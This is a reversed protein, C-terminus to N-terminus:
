YVERQYIIRDNGRFLGFTLKASPNEEFSGNNNWDYKFWTPVEYEFNLSGVKGNGVPPPFIFERYGGKEVSMLPAPAVVPNIDDPKIPENIHTSADLLRYQWASLGGAWLTDTNIESGINPITCNDDTNVEFTTGNWYQIEMPAPLESTEPGFSNEIYWRGFRVEVGEAVVPITSTITSNPDSDDYLNILDNDEIKSITFPIQAPFPADESHLNHEYIFHDTANFEYLLEGSREISSGINSTGTDNVVPDSGLTVVSAIQIKEGAVNPTLRVKAFDESPDVINIGSASLNMFAAYTYNETIVGNANYATILIEPAVGYTITGKGETEQGSYVWDLECTGLSSHKATISGHSEVTQTFYAPTFRGVNAIYGQIDGGDLYDGDDLKASLHIIGVESFNYSNTLTSNAFFDNTEPTLIGENATSPNPLFLERSVKLAENEFNGAVDNVSLDSFNDPVGDNNDDQNPQWQKATATLKFSEGAKKFANGLGSSALAKATNVDQSFDLQFGFPRVVFANSSVSFDKIVKNGEIDEVEVDKHANLIIKGADPYELSFYAKSDSTFRLGHEVTSTTLPVDVSNNVLTVNNACASSNEAHCTYSLNVPVDSNEPFVGVCSGTSDDKKVAQLFLLENNFGTDSPKGSLQMPIIPSTNSDNGFIFGTDAFVVDCSTTSSMNNQCIYDEALSLTAPILTNTYLFNTESSGGVVRVTKDVTGNVSLEVDVEGEYLSSCLSDSCAKITISEAECTLGQGDHSIEFHDVTNVCPHTENKIELLEIQTLAGEYMRVEDIAGTFRNRTEGSNTEGGISAIGNDVGWDGTYTNSFGGDTVRQAIGNVYIERTKDISNHVAAVFTWTDNSIVANLTDVSIPAVGRSYFRLKGTGPDGLSFGYGQQANNEDDVFIRSGSNTNSPKIWATITFSSQQNDFSSPLAVYDNIGDFTGYGCTGPNGTIAPTLQETNANNIAQGDFNGTEDTVEGEVGLWFLEDFRMELIPKEICSRASGDYGLGANQNNYIETIKDGSIASDFILLEDLLGEFAQSSVFSGGISDQEQGLILSQISLADTAQTVCGQLVTDQYLCSQSGQRTWVLHHWNDDAISLTSINGNHREKIYPRFSDHDIFWMLMDNKNDGAGSLLSQNTRKTTKSWLSVTFDTKGDLVQEDLIAYDAIGSQSLDIANCVKGEDIPQSFIAQGHFNGISDTVENPAGTYDFEDFRYEAIPEAEPCLESEVDIYNVVAASSLDVSNGSVAGFIRVDDALAINQESYIFGNFKVQNNLAINDKGFLLFKSTEGLMNIESEISLLISGKVFFRVIGGGVITIKNQLNSTFSGNVKYNGAELQLTAQAGLSINNYNGPPLALTDQNGINIDNNNDVFDDYIIIPAANGSAICNSTNCTLLGLSSTIPNSSELINDPNDRVQSDTGFVISGSSSNNQIGDSFVASCQAASVPFLYGIYIFIGLLIRVFM